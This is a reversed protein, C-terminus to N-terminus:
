GAPRCHQIARMFTGHNKCWRLQEAKDMGISDLADLIGCDPCIDGSGDRAIASRTRYIQGCRPCIKEGSSYATYDAPVNKM